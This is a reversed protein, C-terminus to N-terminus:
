FNCDYIFGYLLDWQPETSVLRVLTCSSVPNLEQGQETPQPDLMATATTHTRLQLESEVGLKSSGYAAPLARFILYISLRIFPFLDFNM